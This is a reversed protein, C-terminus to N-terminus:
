NFSAVPGLHEVPAYLFVLQMLSTGNLFRSATEAIDKDEVHFGAAPVDGLAELIRGIKQSAQVSDTVRTTPGVFRRLDTMTGQSYFYHPNKYEIDPELYNPHQLCCGSDALVGGVTKALSEPGLINVTIDIITKKHASQRPIKALNASSVVAAFTLDDLNRIPNLHRATILDLLAFENTNGDLSQSLFFSQDRVAIPLSVFSTWPPMSHRPASTAQAKAFFLQEHFKTLQVPVNGWLELHWSKVTGYCIHQRGSPDAVRVVTQSGTGSGVDVDMPDLSVLKSNPGPKELFRRKSSFNNEVNSAERKKGCSPLGEMKNISSTGPSRVAGNNHTSPYLIHSVFHGYYRDLCSCINLGLCVQQPFVWAKQGIM